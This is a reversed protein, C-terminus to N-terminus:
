AEHAKRMHYRLKAAAALPIKGEFADGCTPCIKVSPEAADDAAAGTTAMELAEQRRGVSLLAEIQKEQLAMTAKRASEERELIMAEYSTSHKKKMHNEVQFPNALHESMCVPFGQEHREKAGVTDPHLWCKFTGYKPKVTPTASFVFKGRMAPYAPDKHVRKLADRAHAEMMTHPMGTITHYLTVWKGMGTAQSVIAPSSWGDSKPLLDGQRETQAPDDASELGEEQQVMNALMETYDVSTTM